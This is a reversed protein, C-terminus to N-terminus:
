IIPELDYGQGATPLLLSSLVRPRTGHNVRPDEEWIGRWMWISGKVCLSISTQVAIHHLLSKFSPRRSVLPLDKGSSGSHLDADSVSSYGTGGAWASHWTPLSVVGATSTFPLWPFGIRSACLSSSFAIRGVWPWARLSVKSLERLVPAVHAEGVATDPLPGPM